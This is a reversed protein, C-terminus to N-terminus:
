TFRQARNIINLILNIVQKLLKKTFSIFPQFKREKFNCLRTVQEKCSNQQDCYNQDIIIPNHVNVMKIDVFKINSASGSGGQM